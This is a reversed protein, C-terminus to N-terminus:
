KLFDFISKQETAKAQWSFVKCSKKNLTLTIEGTANYEPNLWGTLYILGNVSRSRITKSNTELIISKGKTIFYLLSRNEGYEDSYIKSPDINGKFPASMVVHDVKPSPKYEGTWKGEIRGDPQIVMAIKGRRQRQLSVNAQIVLPRTISLQEESPTQVEESARVIRFEQNWPLQPDQNSFLAFPDFWALTGIVVIILLMLLLVVGRHNGQLLLELHVSNM